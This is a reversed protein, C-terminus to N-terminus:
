IEFKLNTKRKNSVKRELELQLASLKNELCTIKLLLDSKHTLAEDFRSKTMALEKVCVNIMQYNKM